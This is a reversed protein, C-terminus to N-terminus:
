VKSRGRSVFNDVGYSLRILLFEYPRETLVYLSRLLYIIAVLIIFSYDYDYDTKWPLKRVQGERGFLSFCFKSRSSGQGLCGYRLRGFM